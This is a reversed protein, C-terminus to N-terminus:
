ASLKGQPVNDVLLMPANTTPIAMPYTALAAKEDSTFIREVVPNQMPNQTKLANERL